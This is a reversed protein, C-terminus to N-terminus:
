HTTSMLGAAILKEMTSFLEWAPVGILDAIEILDKTGDSYAIFNMMDRVIAGSRKTSLTPYLGYKGLQPECLCTMRPRTNAEILEICRLYVDMSEQLGNPTVLSLDDQSTHYEPYEGYKSRMISCVPLDVGPSCYQREDSGRQLFSYSTYDPHMHKLVHMAIRDSLTNGNRSPLFSVAREDGVCTVQFGAIINQKMKELNESLYAISGITEPIFVIRYTYKRPATLLWKTLETVVAPGSLENNAMEPHCIYTSLLVEKESDGNIILEGYTLAGDKLESDIYAEYVGEELSDRVRQTICFGWREKYYSTIYPIADPQDPLSYLHQQLESIPLKANIPTSYGVVHLRHVDFDAIVEGSPSTLRASRISWEKPVIWDFVKTCSPIEHTTLPITEGIIGLTKRVGDGTLSRPIRFLKQILAYGATGSPIYM